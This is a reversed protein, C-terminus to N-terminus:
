TSLGKSLRCARKVRTSTEGGKELHLPLEVCIYSPVFLLATHQLSCGRAFSQNPTYLYIIFLYYFYSPLTFSTVSLAPTLDYPLFYWQVLMTIAYSFFLFFLLLLLAFCPLTFSRGSIFGRGM